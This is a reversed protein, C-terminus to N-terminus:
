SEDHVSTDIVFSFSNLSSLDAGIALSSDSSSSSKTSAVLGENLSPQREKQQLLRRLATRFFGLFLKM